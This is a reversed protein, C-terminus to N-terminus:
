KHIIGFNMFSQFFQPKSGAYVFTILGFFTLQESQRYIDTFTHIIYSNGFIIYCEINELM